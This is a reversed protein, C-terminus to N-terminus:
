LWWFGDCSGQAVRMLATTEYIMEISPLEGSALQQGATPWAQGHVFDRAAAKVHNPVKGEHTCEIASKEYLSLDSTATATARTLNLKLDCRLAHQKIGEVYYTPGEIAEQYESQIRSAALCPGGKTLALVTTPLLRGSTAADLQVELDSEPHLGLSTAIIWRYEAEPIEDTKAFVSSLYPEFVEEDVFTFADKDASQLIQLTRLARATGDPNIGEVKDPLAGLWRVAREAPGVISSQHKQLLDTLSTGVTYTQFLLDLAPRTRDSAELLLRVGLRLEREAIMGVDPPVSGITALALLARSSEILEATLSSEFESTAYRVQILDCKGGRVAIRAATDGARLLSEFDNVGAPCQPDPGVFRPDDIGFSRALKEVRLWDYDSDLDALKIMQKFAARDQETPVLGLFSWNYALDLSEARPDSPDVLAALPVEFETGASASILVASRIAFDRDALAPEGFTPTDHPFLADM